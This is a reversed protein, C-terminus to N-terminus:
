QDSTTKVDKTTLKCNDCREFDTVAGTKKDIKVTHMELNKIDAGDNLAQNLADCEACNSVDWDTFTEKGVKIKAQNKVKEIESVLMPNKEMTNVLGGSRGYYVRGTKTDVIATIARPLKSKSTNAIIDKAHKVVYSKALSSAKITARFGLGLLEGGIAGALSWKAETSWKEFAEPDNNKKAKEAQAIADILAGTEYAAISKSLYGKTVFVDIAVVGVVIGFTFGAKIEDPDWKYNGNADFPHHGQYVGPYYVSELGEMEVHSIVRNEDFSYTSNWPFEQSLPDISL